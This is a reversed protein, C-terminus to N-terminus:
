ENTIMKSGPMEERRLRLVDEFLLRLHDEDLEQWSAVLYALAAKSNGEHVYCGMNEFDQLAQLCKEFIDVHNQWAKAAEERYSARSRGRFFDLRELGRELQETAWRQLSIVLAHNYSMPFTNVATVGHLAVRPIRDDTAATNAAM